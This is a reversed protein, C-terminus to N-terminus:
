MHLCTDYHFRSDHMEQFTNEKILILIYVSEIKKKFFFLFGWIICWSDSLRSIGFNGEIVIIIEFLYACVHLM